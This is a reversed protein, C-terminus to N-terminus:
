GSGKSARRENARMRRDQRRIREKREVRREKRVDGAEGMRAEKKEDVEVLWDEEGDKNKGKYGWKPVWEGKEKDYVLKGDRLKPAIGKKAAFREWKTQEKAAPVPKERPLPTTAAPLEIHVGEPTSRIVCTTLLQNLLSQACDRATSHLDSPSPNPPLPNTDSCLLHGLDFTYPIPKTVTVSPKKSSGNLDIQSTAEAMETDTMTSM